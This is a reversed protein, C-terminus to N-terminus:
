EWSCESAPLSEFDHKVSIWIFQMNRVTKPFHALNICETSHDRLKLHFTYQIQWAKQWKIQHYSTMTYSPELCIQSILLWVEEPLIFFVSFWRLMSPNNFFASEIIDVQMIRIKRNIPLKGQVTLMLALMMKIALIYM